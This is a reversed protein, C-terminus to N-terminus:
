RVHPASRCTGGVGTLQIGRIVANLDFHSIDFKKKLKEKDIPPRQNSAMKDADTDACFTATPPHNRLIFVGIIDSSLCNRWPSFLRWAASARRGQQDTRMYQPDVGRLMVFIHICM